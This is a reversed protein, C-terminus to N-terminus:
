GAPAAVARNLRSFARAVVAHAPKRANAATLVGKFNWPPGPQPNGGAWGPACAFDRLIWLIAGSLHRDDAYAAISDGLFRAQFQYTGKETDPGHRNAEAGFESIVTAQRPFMERIQRLRRPVETVPDRTGYWGAYLNFGVLDLARFAKRPREYGLLAMAALSDPALRKVTAAAETVYADTGATFPRLPENGVSFALVSPHGRDRTIAERLRALAKERLAPDELEPGTARFMPVESWVLVGERDAWELMEPHLPYHSRIVRAGVAEFQRQDEERGSRTSTALEHVAAGWLRVRRGNLFLHGRRVEIERLGVGARWRAVTTGDIAADLALRYLKPTAPSWLTAGKLTLRLTATAIGRAPVATAPAALGRPGLTGRLSVSQPADTANRLQARVTVRRGSTTVWVDQLDVRDVPRLYVERLIGGWNWWFARTGPVGGPERRWDVRVLVENAGDRLPADVEFPVHAGEHAGASQGNVWVQARESVSEFRLRWGRGATGAPMGFRTRYWAVSGDFSAPSLDGDNAAHPISVPTWAGAAQPDRNIEWGARLPQKGAIGDAQAPAAAVLAILVPLLVRV